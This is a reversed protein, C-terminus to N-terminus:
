SVQSSFLAKDCIAQGCKESKNDWEERRCIIERIYFSQFHHLDENDEWSNAEEIGWKFLIVAVLKKDRENDSEEEKSLLSWLHHWKM